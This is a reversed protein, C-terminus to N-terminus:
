TDALNIGECTGAAGDAELAADWGAGAEEGVEACGRRERKAGMASGFGAISSFRGTDGSASTGSGARGWVGPPRSAFFVFGFYAFGGLDLFRQIRALICM